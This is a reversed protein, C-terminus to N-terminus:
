YDAIIDGHVTRWIRWAGWIGQTEYEGAADIHMEGEDSVRGTFVYLDGMHEIEHPFAPHSLPLFTLM